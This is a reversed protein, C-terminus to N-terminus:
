SLKSLNKQFYWKINECTITDQNVFIYTNISSLLVFICIFFKKEIHWNKDFINIVIICITYLYENFLFLAECFLFVLRILWQYIM